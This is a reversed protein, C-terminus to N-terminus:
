AATPEAAVAASEVRYLSGDHTEDGLAATLDRGVKVFFENRQPPMPAREANQADYVYLLDVDDGYSMERGGLSGTGIVAFAGPPKEGRRQM